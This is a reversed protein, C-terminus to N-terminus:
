WQTDDGVWILFNQSVACLCRTIWTKLTTHIGASLRYPAHIVLPARAQKHRKDFIAFGQRNQIRLEETILIATNQSETRTMNITCMNVIREIVIKLREAEAHFVLSLRLEALEALDQPLVQVLQLQVGRGVGDAEVIHLRVGLVHLGPQRLQVVGDGQLQPLHTRCIILQSCLM